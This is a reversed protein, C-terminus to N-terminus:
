NKWAFCSSNKYKIEIQQRDSACFLANWLDVLGLNKFFTYFKLSTM